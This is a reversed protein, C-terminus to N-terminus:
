ETLKVASDTKMVRNAAYGMDLVSKLPLPIKLTIKIMVMNKPPPSIGVYRNILLMPIISVMHAMMTGPANLTQFM